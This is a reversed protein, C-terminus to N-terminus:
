ARGARGAVARARRRGSRSATSPPSASGRALELVHEGELEAGIARDVEAAQRGVDVVEDREQGPRPRASTLTGTEPSRARRAPPRRRAGPASRRVALRLGEDLQAVCSEEGARPGAGPGASRELPGAPLLGLPLEADIGRERLPHARQHRPAHGSPPSQREAAWGAAAGRPPDRWTRPSSGRSATPGTRTRDDGGVEVEDLALEDRHGLGDASPGELLDALQLGDPKRTTRM